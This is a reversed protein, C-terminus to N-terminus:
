VLCRPHRLVKMLTDLNMRELYDDIQHFNRELLMQHHKKREAPQMMAVIHEKIRTNEANHAQFDNRKTYQGDHLRYSAVFKPIYRMRAGQIICWRMRHEYDEHQVYESFYGHRLFASRHILVTIGNGINHQLLVSDFLAKPWENRDKEPMRYITKGKHNIKVADAYFITNDLNGYEKAAPVMDKLCNPMMTDDAQMEKFWQGSMSKIGTNMAAGTHGNKERAIIVLREQKESPLKRWYDRMVDLTGDTSKDDVAIVEFNDYEQALCSDLCEIVYRRANYVPIVISVKDQM